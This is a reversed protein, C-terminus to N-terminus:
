CTEIRVKQKAIEARRVATSPDEAQCIVHGIRCTCDLLPFVEHGPEVYVDVVATGPVRKAAAVGSINRVVGPSPTLFRIASARQFRPHLDPERGLALDVVARVLDIGTSLPVLHSAICGGALRAGIEMICPGKRGLRIETHSASWDIGVAEIAAMATHVLREREGASVQAPQSHGIEVYYPPGTTLKDTVAVVCTNGNCTVAEVSFERGDVFEEVLVGGGRTWRIAREFATALGYESGHPALRTVGRGGNSIAPKLVVPGDVVQVAEHAEEVTTVPFFQPCPAQAAALALRMQVKNTAMTAAQCSLGPLRLEDCLSALTPVPYEAAITLVGDVSHKRALEVCQNYDGLDVVHAHDAFQFGQAEPNPDLAVASLGMQRATVIAPLQRRGAGLIM